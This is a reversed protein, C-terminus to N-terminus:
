LLSNSSANGAMCEMFHAGAFGTIPSWSSVFCQDSVRTGIWSAIDICSRSIAVNPGSSYLFSVKM